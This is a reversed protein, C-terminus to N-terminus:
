VHVGELQPLAVSAPRTTGGILLPRTALPPATLAVASATRQRNVTQEVISGDAVVVSRTGRKALDNDHTVMIITKGTAVLSEFLAFVADATRSDLNGTPEDAVILPPDNALARAIAVRQQQGGSVASPLKAAQAVMDVQALLHLARERRERTSGVGRFDMPLMVNELLSLTPLLQFFQFVVGVSRGRWVALQGESLTHVATDDVLVEGSTPRDIGTLMNILTSKGSGSKGTVAIFEGADVQLDVGKLATFSGAASEFVKVVQRLEILHRNGHRFAGADRTDHTGDRRGFRTWLM